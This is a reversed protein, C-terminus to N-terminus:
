VVIMRQKENENVNIFKAYINKFYYQVTKPSKKIKACLVMQAMMDVSDVGRALFFCAM